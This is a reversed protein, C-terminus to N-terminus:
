RLAVSETVLKSVKPEATPKQATLRATQLAKALQTMTAQLEATPDMATMGESTAQLAEFHLHPGTSNGTSGVLGIVTGQQVWQGPKVFVQSLHAYRTEQKGENHDLLISLGYGGLMEALSVRGSYAALVPTGMPAGLDTGSHFRWEGTIPHVRWGFVSTIDVPMALPFIMREGNNLIWKLPNAGTLPKIAINRPVVATYNLAGQITQASVGEASEPAAPASWRNATWAPPVDSTQYPAAYGSEAVPPAGCLSRAVVQGASLTAQCGSSRENVVVQEPPAYTETAGVSYDKTDIYPDSAQPVSEPVRIAPEPAVPAIPEPEIPEASYQPSAAPEPALPEPAIPEPAISVPDPASAAPASSEPIVLESATTRTFAGLGLSSSLGMWASLMVISQIRHQKSRIQVNPHQTKMQFIRKPKSDLNRDCNFTM